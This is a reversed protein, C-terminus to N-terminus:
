WWGHERIFASQIPGEHVIEVQGCPAFDVYSAFDGPGIPEACDFANVVKTGSTEAHPFAHNIVESLEEPLLPQVSGPRRHNIALRRQSEKVSGQDIM